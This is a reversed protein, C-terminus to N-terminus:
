RPRRLKSDKEKKKNSKTTKTTTANDDDRGDQSRCKVKMEEVEEGTTATTTNVCNFPVNTPNPQCVKALLVSQGQGRGNLSGVKKSPRRSFLTEVRNADMFSLKLSM